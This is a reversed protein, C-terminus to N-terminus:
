LFLDNMDFEPFHKKLKEEFSRSPLFVDTEIKSYFSYSIGLIKAFEKQTLKNKKRFDKLVEM